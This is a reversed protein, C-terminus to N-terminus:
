LIHRVLNSNKKLEEFFRDFAEQRKIMLVKEKFSEKEEELKKEDIAQFEDLRVICYGANTKVPGGIERVKLSFGLNTFEGGPGVGPIYSNRAILETAKVEFAMEKAIDELARGEEIGRKIKSFIENSSEQALKWSKEIILSQKVKDKVEEFPPIYPAVKAKVKLIYYGKDTEITSSVQGIKLRFAEKAFQYSLGINPIPENRSFLGTENKKLPNEKVVSDFDKRTLERAIKFINEEALSKKEESDYEFGIYEVNVKEETKFNEKNQEYHSNLEEELYTIKNEFDKPKILIYSTNIRENEKKYEEKLEEETVVVGFIIKNKLKSIALDDRINEEFDRAGDQLMSKYFDKDFRGNRQFIPLETIKGIVEEDSIKINQHKVEELLILRNWAMDHILEEPVDTGYSRQLFDMTSRFVKEYEEFSVKRNFIRGAYGPGKRQRQSSGVGWIVFAPIILIAIGWMILKM